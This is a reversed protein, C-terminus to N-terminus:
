ELLRLIHAPLLNRVRLMSGDIQEKTINERLHKMYAPTSLTGAQRLHYNSQIGYRDNIDEYVMDFMERLYTAQDGIICLNTQLTVMARDIAEIAKEADTRYLSTLQKHSVGLTYPDCRVPDIHIVDSHKFGTQVDLGVSQEDIISVGFLRANAVVDDLRTQLCVITKAINHQRTADAKSHACSKAAIRIKSLIDVESYIATASVDLLALANNFNKVIGYFGDIRDETTPSDPKADDVYQDNQKYTTIDDPEVFGMDKKIAELAQVTNISRYAEKLIRNNM